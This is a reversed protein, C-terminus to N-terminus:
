WLFREAVPYATVVDHLLQGDADRVRLTVVRFCRTPEGGAKGVPRDAECHTLYRGRTDVVTLRRAAHRGEGRKRVRSRAKRVSAIGDVGEMGDALLAELRERTHFDPHFRSKGAPSAAGHRALIHRTAGRALLVGLSDLRQLPGPAAADVEPGPGTTGTLAEKAEPEPEKAEPVSDRAGSGSEAALREQFRREARLGRQRQAEQRDRAAPRSAAASPKMPEPALKAGSGDAAPHNLRTEAKGEKREVVNEEARPAPAQAFRTAPRREVRISGIANRGELTFLMRGDQGCTIEMPRMGPPLDFGDIGGEGDIRGIRGGTRDTFWICRDPGLALGRLDPFKGTGAAPKVPYIRTLLDVPDVVGIVSVESTAPGSATFWVRHDPGTAVRDPRIGEAFPLPVIKGSALSGVHSPGKGPALFVSWRGDRSGLALTNRPFGCADYPVTNWAFKGATEPEAMRVAREPYSLWVEGDAGAVIRSPAGTLNSGKCHTFTLTRGAATLAFRTLDFNGFMRDGFCWLRDRSDKVLGHMRTDGASGMAHLAGTVTMNFLTPHEGALWFLRGDPGCVLDRPDGHSGTASCDLIKIDGVEEGPDIEFFPHLEAGTLDLDIAGSLDAKFLRAGELRAGTLVAGGLRAGTLDAGRLDAGALDCRRLDADGLNADRLDAGRHIHRAHTWRSHLIGGAASLHPVPFVEDLYEPVPFDKLGALLAAMEADASPLQKREELRAAAGAKGSAGLPWGTLGALLWGLALNGTLAKRPSPM